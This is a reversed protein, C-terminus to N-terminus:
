EKKRVWGLGLLEIKDFRGFRPARPALKVERWEIEVARGQFETGNLSAGLQVVAEGGAVEDM